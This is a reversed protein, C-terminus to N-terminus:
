HFVAQLVDFLSFDAKKYATFAMRFDWTRYLYKLLHVVFRRKNKKNLWSIQNKSFPLALETLADRMYNYNNYMYSFRNNIEQGDHIRYFFFGYPILLVSTHCCVLLNFYMDNAPGYKEPYGGIKRFFDRKMITGGPGIFLFQKKFFHTNLAEDGPIMKLHDIQNCYMGFNFNSNESVDSVLKDLSDTFLKDDSDLFFMYEGSAYSAAKNRNPYDGLNNENIYVKVRSDLLEYKKAIEVTADMSCDDVIILEFNTYTSALVSEIAEAIFNERNYSTMLISILPYSEALM